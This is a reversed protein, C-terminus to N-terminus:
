RVLDVGLMMDHYSLTFNPSCGPNMTLTVLANWKIGSLGQYNEYSFKASTIM